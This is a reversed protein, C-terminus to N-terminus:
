YSEPGLRAKGKFIRHVAITYVLVLPMGILAIILMAGLTGQTSSSNTITLSYAPDLSSPVLNPFLSLAALALWGGIAVSSAVLAALFQRRRALPVVGGLGAMVAATLLWGGGHSLPVTLVRPCIFYAAATVWLAALLLLAWLPTILREIRDRQDGDSKGALYIAGHLACACLSMVGVSVAFPNLLDFFTGTYQGQADIALGRVVNGFAVGLLVAPLLSGLFFAWDWARRWSEGEMKSRVEIAVARAILAVLLLMLALYFGSFVAAYVPPFAAFLAGGATLLWVENGDWVPAIANLSTRRQGEGRALLHLIGVGLDFGDLVAYGILLVFLLVFWTIQLTM